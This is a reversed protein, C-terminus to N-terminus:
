RTWSTRGLYTRRSLGTALGTMAGSGGDGCSRQMAVGPRIASTMSLRKTQRRGQLGRALAEGKETWRRGDPSTACFVSADYGHPFAGKSYWAYYLDKVKIIDSPDRRMVGEEEGIGEVFSSTVIVGAAGIGCTVAMCVTAALSSSFVSAFGM